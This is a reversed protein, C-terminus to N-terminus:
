DSTPTTEDLAGAGARIKMNLTISSDHPSALQLKQSGGAGGALTM